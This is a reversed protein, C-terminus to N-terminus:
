LEDVQAHKDEDDLTGALLLYPQGLWKERFWYYFNQSAQLTVERGVIEKLKYRLPKLDPAIEEDGDKVPHTHVGPIQFGDLTFYKIAENGIIYIDLDSSRPGEADYPHGEYSHGMISSGGLVAGTDAPIGDALVRCFEAFREKDGDFALRICNERMEADTLESDPKNQPNTETM